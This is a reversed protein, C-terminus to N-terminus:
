WDEPIVVEVAQVVVVVQEVEAVREPEPTLVVVEVLGAMTQITTIIITVTSITTTYLAGV